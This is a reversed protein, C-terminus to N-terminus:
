PKVVLRLQLADVGPPRCPLPVLRLEQVMCRAFRITPPTTIDGDIRVDQVGGDPALALTVTATLAPPTDAALCRALAPAEDLRRLWPETGPQLREFAAQPGRFGGEDVATVRFRRGAHGPPLALAGLADCLCAADLPRAMTHDSTAVCRSVDGAASVSARLTYRFGLEPAPHACGAARREAAQLSAEEIPSKGWPGIGQPFEFRVPPPHSMGTMGLGVMGWAGSEHLRGAVALWAKPDHPKAVTRSVYGVAFDERAPDRLDVKLQCSDFCAADLEVYPRSAFYRAVLEDPLLPARCQQDGELVLRGAAAAAEIRELETVPVVEHGRAVLAKAVRRRVADAEDPFLVVPPQEHLPRIVFAQPPFPLEIPVLAQPPPPAPPAGEGKAAGDGELAREGKAAGDGERAGEGKPAAEGPAVALSEAAPPGPDVPRCGLLAVAM